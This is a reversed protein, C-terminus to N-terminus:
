LNFTRKTSSVVIALVMLSMMIVLTLMGARDFSNMVAYSIGFVALPVIMVSVKKISARGQSVNRVGAALALLV